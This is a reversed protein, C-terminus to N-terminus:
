SPVRRVPGYTDLADKISLREDDPGLMHPASVVTWTDGDSDVWQTGVDAQQIDEVTVTECQPSQCCGEADTWRSGCDGCINVRGDGIIDDYSRM